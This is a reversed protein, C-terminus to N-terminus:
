LILLEINVLLFSHVLTVSSNQPSLAQSALTMHEVRLKPSFFILNSMLLWCAHFMTEFCYIQFTKYFEDFQEIVQSFLM